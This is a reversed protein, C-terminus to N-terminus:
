CDRILVGDLLLNVIMEALRHREAPSPLPAVGRLAPLILGAFMGMVVQAGLAPDIGRFVGASIREAIFSTLLRHIRRIRDAVFENLIVDDVWAENLVTQAFPLQDGSITLAKEFVDIMEERTGLGGAELLAAEIPADADHAIAMLIERKGSFYNYLTGEAVDAEEAVERTTSNSYGKRAFVRAAAETIRQRRRSIRRQRRNTLTDTMGLTERRIQNEM